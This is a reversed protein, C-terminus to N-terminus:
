LILPDPDQDLRDPDQETLGEELEAFAMKNEPDYAGILRAYQVPKGRKTEMELIEMEIPYLYPGEGLVEILEAASETAAQCFGDLSTGDALQYTIKDLVLGAAKIEIGTSLHLGTVIMMEGVHDRINPNSQGAAQVQKAQIMKARFTSLKM